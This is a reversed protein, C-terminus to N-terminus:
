AHDLESRLGTMHPSERLSRLARSVRARATEESVGLERAVDSYSREQVVRLNLADRQDPGLSAVESHLRKCLESLGALDEVREYEQDTLARREVGLRQLARREVEGSNWYSALCHRAIGFVWAAGAEAAEGRFQARDRYAQAFTEAMLDVAVEPLFTRRVLFAVVGSAHRRYLEAVDESSLPM